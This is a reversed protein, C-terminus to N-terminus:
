RLEYGVGHVTTVQIWPLKARLRAVHADLTNDSVLAGAPWATARLEARTVATDPHAALQALVRFETPTLRVPGHGERAATHAVPDLSLRDGALEITAPGGPAISRRLLAHLRAVLEAIDFPKVLYDDGGAAFGALRDPRADHATLFLVPATVGRARLAQCLDRGDTDPLGIDLVVADPREREVAELAERGTGRGRVRFGARELVRRVADRQAHDDEVVLINPGDMAM